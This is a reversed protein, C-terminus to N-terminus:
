ARVPPNERDVWVNWEENHAFFMSMDALWVHATLIKSRVVETM